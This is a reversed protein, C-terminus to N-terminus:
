VYQARIQLSGLICGNRGWKKILEWVLSGLEKSLAYLAKGRVCSCIMRPLDDQTVASQMSTIKCATFFASMGKRAPMEGTMIHSQAHGCRGFVIKTAAFRCPNWNSYIGADVVLKSWGKSTKAKQRKLDYKRWFYRSCLCVAASPCGSGNAQSQCIECACLSHKAHWLQDPAKLDTPVERSTECKCEARAEKIACGTKKRRRHFRGLLFHLHDPRLPSLHAVSIRAQKLFSSNLLNYKTFCPMFLQSALKRSCAPASNNHTHAYIAASHTHTAWRKKWNTKSPTKPSGAMSATIDPRSLTVVLRPLNQKNWDILHECRM